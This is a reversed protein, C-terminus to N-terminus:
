QLVRRENRQEAVAGACTAVFSQTNIFKLRGCQLGGSNASRFFNEGVQAIIGAPEHGPIHPLKPIYAMGDLIHLDTRCIGCTRTEVLVEHPGIKPKPVEEVKLPQGLERFLAAKM